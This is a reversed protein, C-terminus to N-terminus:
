APIHRGKAVSDEMGPLNQDVSHVGGYLARKLNGRIEPMDEQMEIGAGKYVDKGWDAIKESGIAEGAMRGLGGVGQAASYPAHKLSTKIVDVVSPDGWTGTAGPTNGALLDKPQLLDIPKRQLLDIPM